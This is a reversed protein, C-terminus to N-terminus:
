TVGEKVIFSAIIQDIFSIAESRVILVLSITRTAPQADTVPTKLNSEAYLQHPIIRLRHKYRALLGEALRHVVHLKWLYQGYSTEIVKVRTKGPLEKMWKDIKVSNGGNVSAIRVVDPPFAKIEISAIVEQTRVDVVDTRASATRQKTQIILTLGSDM